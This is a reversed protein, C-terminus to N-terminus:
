GFKTYWITTLLENQSRKYMLAVEVEVQIRLSAKAVSSPFSCSLETFYPQARV